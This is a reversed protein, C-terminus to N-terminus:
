FAVHVYLVGTVKIDHLLLLNLLVRGMHWTSFYAFSCLKKKNLMFKATKLSLNIHVCEYTVGSPSAIQVTSHAIFM